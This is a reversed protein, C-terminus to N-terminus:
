PALSRYLELYRQSQAQDGRTAYLVSLYEASPYFKPDLALAKLFYPEARDLDRRKLYILAANHFTQPYTTGARIMLEYQELARADDGQDSHAIALNHRIRASTPSYALTHEFFRVPTAWVQNQRFTKQALAITVVAAVGMGIPTRTLLTGAALFLPMSTLYMWHELFVSNVAILVGSHPLHAATMWLVTFAM